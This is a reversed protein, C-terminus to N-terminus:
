RIDTPRFKSPSAPCSVGGTRVTEAVTNLLETAYPASKGFVLLEPHALGFLGITYAFPPEDDPPCECGPVSCTGGGVYQIAWGHQRVAATM